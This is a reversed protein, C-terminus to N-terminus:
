RRSARPKGAAPRRASSPNLPGHTVGPAGFAWKLRLKPVDDAALGADPRFRANRVDGGWGNWYADIGVHSPNSPASECLGTEFPLSAEVYDQGTIWEAVAVHQASTLAQGQIRMMGDTLSDVIANPGLARMAELAPVDDEQPDVHCAACYSQFLTEGGQAHAAAGWAALAAGALVSTLRRM